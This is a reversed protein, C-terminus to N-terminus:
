VGTSGFGGEGRSTSEEDFSDVIKVGIPKLTPNCIQVVRSSKKLTYNFHEINVPQNQENIYQIVEFTPVYQLAACITGRYDKDIIGVSNALRLPTKYISSRAYLAYPMTVPNEQYSVMRSKINLKVLKTEGPKFTVDEPIFLDIGSDEPHNIRSEYYERTNEECIIELTPM